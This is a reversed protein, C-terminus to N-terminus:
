GRFKTGIIPYKSMGAEKAENQLLEVPSYFGQENLEHIEVWLQLPASVERWREVFTKSAKTSVDETITTTTKQPSTTTTTTTTAKKAAPAVPFLYIFFGNFDIPYEPIM